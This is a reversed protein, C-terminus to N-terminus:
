RLKTIIHLGTTTQGSKEGWLTKAEILIQTRKKRRALLNKTFVAAKMESIIIVKSM